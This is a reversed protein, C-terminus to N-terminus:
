VLHLGAIRLKQIKYMVQPDKLHHLALSPNEQLDHLVSQMIPDSLINQIETDQIVKGWREHLEAPLTSKGMTRKIQEVCSQVKDMLDQDNPNHKLGEQYAELAKDYDEIFFLITGKRIYGKSFSPDLEICKQADKLGEAWAGLWTYCAARNSYTMSAITFSLEPLVLLRLGSTHFIM